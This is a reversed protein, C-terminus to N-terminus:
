RKIDAKADPGRFDKPGGTPETVKKKRAKTVVVLQEDDFYETDPVEGKLMKGQVGWHVCGNLHETKSVATGEYGTVKDKVKDGLETM